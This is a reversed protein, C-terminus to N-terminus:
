CYHEGMFKKVDPTTLVQYVIKDTPVSLHAAKQSKLHQSFIIEPMKAVAENPAWLGGRSLSHIYEDDKTEALKLSQLLFQYERSRVSNWHKANKSKRYLSQLDYGYVYALPGIVDQRLEIKDLDQFFLDLM